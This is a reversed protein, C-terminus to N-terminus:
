AWKIEERMEHHSSYMSGGGSRDMLADKHAGAQGRHWGTWSPLM